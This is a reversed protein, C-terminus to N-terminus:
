PLFLFENSNLIARCLTALGHEGVLTAYEAAQEESPWRGYALRFARRVQKDPESGAEKEVRRALFQAQDIVFKSNFLNLAQIPTTSRNRQPCLQGGDPIDLVGFTPDTEIRVRFEYVMRRWENESFNEKPTYTRYKGKNLSKYGPGEMTTNLKGSIYLISDRIAEAELRRSSFRWLLRNGADVALAADNPASAQRYISSSTILRHMAKISWGREIFESALWNLLKPHTPRSGQGGFNSPTDVLGVGFHFQWIRNVM